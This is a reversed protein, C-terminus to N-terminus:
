EPEEAGMNEEDELLNMELLRCKFEMAENTGSVDDLLETMNVSKLSFFDKIKSVTIICQAYWDHFIVDAVLIKHTRDASVKRSKCEKVQHYIHHIKHICCRPMQLKSNGPYGDWKPVLFPSADLTTGCNITMTESTACTHLHNLAETM